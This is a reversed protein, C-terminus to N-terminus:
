ITSEHRGWTKISKSAQYAMRFIIKSQKIINETNNEIRKDKRTNISTIKGNLMSKDINFM